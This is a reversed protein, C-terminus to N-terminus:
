VAFQNSHSGMVHIASLCSSLYTLQSLVIHMHWPLPFGVSSHCTAFRCRNMDETLRKINEAYMAAISRRAQLAKGYATLYVHVSHSVGTRQLVCM